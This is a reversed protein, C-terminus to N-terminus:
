FEVSCVYNINVQITGASAQYVLTDQGSPSSNPRNSYTGMGLTVASNAAVIIPIITGAAGTPDLTDGTQGIAVYVQNTTDPNYVIITHCNDPIATAPSNATVNGAAVTTSLLFRDSSNNTPM